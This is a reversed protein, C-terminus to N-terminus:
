KDGPVWETIRVEGDDDAEQQYAECDLCRAPGCQMEGVGIDVTPIDLNESNCFPCKM